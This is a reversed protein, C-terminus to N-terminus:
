PRAETVPPTTTGADQLPSALDAAVADAAVFRWDSVRQRGPTASGPRRSTAYQSSRARVGVLGGSADRIEVWDASGSFPDEYRRRLHHRVRPSRRDELLEDISKPWAGGDLRYREIAGRIQEARFVLERERERQAALTWREGVLVMAAALMALLWLLALYGFGRARRQAPQARKSRTGRGPPLRWHRSGALVAGVAVSGTPM